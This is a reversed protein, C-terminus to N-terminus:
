LTLIIEQKTKRCKECNMMVNKEAIELDRLKYLVTLCGFVFQAYVQQMFYLLFHQIDFHCFGFATICEPYVFCLM